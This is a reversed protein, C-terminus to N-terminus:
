LVVAKPKSLVWIWFTNKIIYLIIKSKETRQTNLL